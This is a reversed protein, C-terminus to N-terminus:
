RRRDGGCSREAVLRSGAFREANHQPSLNYRSVFSPRDYQRMWFHERRPTVKAILVHQRRDIAM